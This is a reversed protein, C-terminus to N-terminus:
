NASALLRVGTRGPQQRGSILRVELATQPMSIPSLQRENRTVAGDTSTQYSRTLNISGAVIAGGRDLEALQSASLELPHRYVGWGRGRDFDNGRVAGRSGAHVTVPVYCGTFVDGPLVVNIQDLGPQGPAHGAFGPHISEGAVEVTVDATTYSGLGTAWLTVTQGPLAPHTLQNLTPKGSSDLNQALASGSQGVFLAPAAALIEISVPASGQDDVALRLTTTGLPIAPPVVATAQGSSIVTAPVRIAPGFGRTQFEVFVRQPDGPLSPAGPGAYAYILSGAAIDQSGDAANVFWATWPTQGCALGFPLLLLLSTRM